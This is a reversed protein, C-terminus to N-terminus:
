TRHVSAHHALAKHYAAETAQTMSQITSVPTPVFPGPQSQFARLARALDDVSGPAFRLRPDAIRDAIGAVDSAIVPLRAAQAELLVYPLNEPWRSAVVLFDVERLFSRMADASLPGTFEVRLGQALQQLEALYGLDDATGAIRLLTHNL